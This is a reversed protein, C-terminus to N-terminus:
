KGLRECLPLMKELASVIRKQESLPPLPICIRSYHAYGFNPQMGSLQELLQKKFFDSQVVYYLFLNDALDNFFRLRLTSTNMMITDDLNYIAAKGWSGGSCSCVIDGKNVTLHTYKELYEATDIFLKKVELDVKGNLINTVCLLQTGGNRYQWKRIGAGEQIISVDSLQVWCWTDPIDFPYDGETYFPKTDGKKYILKNKVLDTKTKKLQKLLDAANGEAAIQPVLKGQVAEQLLAKKAQEGIAANLESLVEEKKGYEDILPMFQEIAAVIRKQESLPPLPIITSHLVESSLGPMATGKSQMRNTNRYLYFIYYFFYLDVVMYPRLRHIHNQICIDYDYKWIATRGYYAGGECILIDGKTATCRELEEDSFFMEKVNTFDFSDWYLNSTTIFKRVTGKKNYDKSSSNMAKGTNHMFIDGVYCWVWSEPIDFPKEDDTIEPLPKEKKIKGAKILEAKEKRIANLLDAANGEAAIQPVLKGQVAEQLLANKLDKAKMTKM